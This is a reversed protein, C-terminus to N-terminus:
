DRFAYITKYTEWGKKDYRNNIKVLNGPLIKIDKKACEEILCELKIGPYKNLNYSKAFFYKDGNFENIDKSIKNAFQIEDM